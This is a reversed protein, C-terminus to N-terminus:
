NELEQEIPSERARPAPCRAQFASAWAAATMGPLANGEDFELGDDALTGVPGASSRTLNWIGEISASKTIRGSYDLGWESEESMRRSSGGGDRDRDGRGYQGTSDARSFGGSSFIQSSDGPCVHLGPGSHLLAATPSIFPSGGQPTGAAESSRRQSGGGGGEGPELQFHVHGRPRPGRPAGAGSLSGSSGKGSRADQRGAHREIYRDVADPAQARRSILSAAMQESDVARRLPLFLDHDHQAHAQAVPGAGYGSASASGAGPSSGAGAPAPAPAPAAPAAEAVKKPGAPLLRAPGGELGAAGAARRRCRRRPRLRGRPPLRGARPLLPAAPRRPARYLPFLPSGDMRFSPVFAPEPKLREALSRAERTGGSEFFFIDIWHPVIFIHDTAGEGGHGHGSGSGHGGKRLFPESECHLMQYGRRLSDRNIFLPVTHAPPRAVSVLDIVIGNDVMRQKTMQQWGYEVEFVGTGATVCVISQGTHSLDRDIHHVRYFDRYLRGAGDRRAAGFGEGAGAGAAEDPYFCRAFFVLTTAHEVGLATWREMMTRMFGSVAKEFYLMGDHAFSWMESSLQVLIIFKASRSRFTIVTKQTIVQAGARGRRLGPSASSLPPRLRPCAGGRGGQRPETSDSNSASAAGAQGPPGPPDKEKQQQEQHANVNSRMRIEKVQARMGELQVWRTTYTCSLALHLKFRYIESQSIYQDKFSLELFNIEANDAAISRVEVVRRAQLEFLDAVSQLVSVQFNGRRPALSLVQLVVRKQPRDPHFIEFTDGVRADPFHEQNIVLEETSFEPTHVSLSYTTQVRGMGLLSRQMTSRAAPASRRADAQAGQSPSSRQQQEKGGAADAAAGASSAAVGRVPVDVGLYRYAFLPVSM